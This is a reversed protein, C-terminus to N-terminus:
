CRTGLVRIRRSTAAAATSIATLSQGAFFVRRLPLWVVFSLSVEAGGHGSQPQGSAPEERAQESPGHPHRSSTQRGTQGAPSGFRAHSEEDRVAMQAPTKTRLARYFAEKESPSMHRFGYFTNIAESLRNRLLVSCLVTLLPQCILRRSCSVVCPVLHRICFALFHPETEACAVALRGAVRVSRAPLRFRSARSLSRLLANRRRRCRPSHSVQGM